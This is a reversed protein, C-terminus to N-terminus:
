HDKTLKNRLSRRYILTLSQHSKAFAITGKHCKLSIVKSASTKISRQSYHDISTQVKLINDYKEWDIKM